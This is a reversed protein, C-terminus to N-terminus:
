SCVFGLCFMTPGAMVLAKSVMCGVLTRVCTCSFHPHRMARLNLWNKPLQVLSYPLFPHWTSMM